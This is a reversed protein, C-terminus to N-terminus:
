QARMLEMAKTKICELVWFLNRLVEDNTFRIVKIGRRELEATRNLDKEIQDHSHHYDGDIEIVLKISHCYFDVIYFGFPHQAKFRLGLLQNKQLHKWLAIESLTMNKRHWRARRFTEGSAGGFM